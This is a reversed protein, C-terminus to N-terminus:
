SQEVNKYYIESLEPMADRLSDFYRGMTQELDRELKSNRPDALSGPIKAELIKLIGNIEDMVGNNM